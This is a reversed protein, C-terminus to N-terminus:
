GQGTGAQSRRATGAQGSQSTLAMGAQRPATDIVLEIM